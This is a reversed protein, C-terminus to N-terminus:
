KMDGRLVAAADMTADVIQKYGTCRCANHHQSFWTRVDERSPSDNKELLAKASVVFGPTCFGCQTAGNAIIAQQIPHLAGPQGIGEITLIAADEPVRSMKTACALTLKGNVLVSCAGCQGTDCSVKTGTLMLQRRLVSSLSTDPDHIVTRQVGNVLLGKMEM